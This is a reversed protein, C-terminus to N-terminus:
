ELRKSHGSQLSYDTSHYARESIVNDYLIIRKHIGSPDKAIGAGEKFHFHV